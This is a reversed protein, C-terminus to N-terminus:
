VEQTDLHIFQDIIRREMQHFTYSISFGSCTSGAFVLWQQEGPDWPRLFTLTLEGHRVCGQKGLM